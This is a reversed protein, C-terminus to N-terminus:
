MKFEVSYFDSPVILIKCESMFSFNLYLKYLNISGVEIYTSIEKVYLDAQGYHLNPESYVNLCHHEFYNKIMNMMNNHWIAGHPKTSNKEPGHKYKKFNWIKNQEYNIKTTNIKGSVILISIMRFLCNNCKIPDNQTYPSLEINNKLFNTTELINKEVKKWTM